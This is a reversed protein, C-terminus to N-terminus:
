KQPPGPFNTPSIPFGKVSMTLLPKGIDSQITDAVSMSTGAYITCAGHTLNSIFQIFPTLVGRPDKNKPSQWIKRDKLIRYGVNVEDVAFIIRGQDKLVDQKLSSLVEDILMSLISTNENRLIAKIRNIVEPAGNLQSVLYREPSLDKMKDALLRLFLLRSAVELAIRQDAYDKLDEIREDSVKKAKKQIDNFFSAFLRDTGPNRNNEEEITGCEFFVTYYQRAVDFIMRTKGCGSTGILIHHSEFKPDFNKLQKLTDPADSPLIAFRMDITQNTRPLPIKYFAGLNEKTFKEDILQPPDM